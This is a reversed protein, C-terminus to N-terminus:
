RPRTSTSMAGRCNTASANRQPRRTSTSGNKSYSGTCIKWTTRYKKVARGVPGRVASFLRAGYKFFPAVTAGQEQQARGPITSITCLVKDAAVTRIQPLTLSVILRAVPSTMAFMAKAVNGEERATQRAFLLTELILDEFLKPPVGSFLPFDTASMSHGDAARQWSEADKFRLDVIVFPLAAVRKRADVELLRWQDRNHLVFQPLEQSSSTTAPECLLEVCQENLQHALAISAAGTWRASTASGQPLEAAEDTEFEDM